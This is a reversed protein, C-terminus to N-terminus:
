RKLAKAVELASRASDVNRKVYELSEEAQQIMFLKAEDWTAFINRGRKM